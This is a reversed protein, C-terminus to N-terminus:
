RSYINELRIPIVAMAEKTKNGEFSRGGKSQKNRMFEGNKDMLEILIDKTTGQQCENFM